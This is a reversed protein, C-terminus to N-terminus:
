EEAVRDVFEDLSAHLADSLELAVGKVKKSAILKGIDADFLSWEITASVRAPADRGIWVEERTAPMRGLVRGDTDVIVEGPREVIVRSRRERPMFHVATVTGAMRYREPGFDGAALSVAPERVVTFGADEFTSYTIVCGDAHTDPNARWRCREGLWKGDEIDVALGVLAIDVAMIPAEDEQSYGTTPASLAVVSAALALLLTDAKM